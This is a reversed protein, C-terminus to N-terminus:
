EDGRLTVIPDIDLAKKIPSFCSITTILVGALTSFLILSYRLTAPTKFVNLSIVQSIVLGVIGGIFGGIVGVFISEGYFISAIKRNTAGIAKMIGIEKSRELISTMTTSMVCLVTSILSVLVVLLMLWQVKSQIVNETKSIKTIQRIDLNPNDKKLDSVIDSIQRKNTLVSVQILSAVDGINYINQAAKLSTFVKDDYDSNSKVIGKVTFSYLDTDNDKKQTASTVTDVNLKNSDELSITDGVKVKLREAVNIGILIDNLNKNDPVKGIVKWWPNIKLAKEIDIGVVVVDVRKITATGYLYPSYGYIYKNKNSDSLKFSNLDILKNKDIDKENKSLAIPTGTEPLIMINAGFSRLDKSINSSLDIYINSLSTIISTGLLVAMVVILFKRRRVSISKLIIKKLM